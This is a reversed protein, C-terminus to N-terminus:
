EGTPHVTVTEGSVTVIKGCYTFRVTVDARSVGSISPAVLQDLAETEVSGYLSPLEEVDPDSVAAVAEVVAHTAPEAPNVTYEILCADESGDDTIDKSTM